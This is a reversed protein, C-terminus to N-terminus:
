GDPHEVYRQYDEWFDRERMAELDDRVGKAIEAMQREVSSVLTEIRKLADLCERLEKEHIM